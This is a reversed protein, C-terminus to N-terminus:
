YVGKAPNYGLREAKGLDDAAREHQGLKEFVEGRHQYLVSMIEDWKRALWELRKRSTIDHTPQEVTLARQREGLSIAQELDALAEHYKGMRYYLYGRTDLYEFSMPWLSLARQVDDLGDELDIGALARGYARANLPGPDAPARFKVALDLDALAKAQDDHRQWIQSRVIYADALKSNIEIARNVEDLAADVQQNELRLRAATTRLRALLERNAGEPMWDIASSLDALASDLDGIAHRKDARRILFQVWMQRGASGLPSEAVIAGVIGLLLVISLLRRLRLKSKPAATRPSPKTQDDFDVRRDDDFGRPLPFGHEDVPPESRNM